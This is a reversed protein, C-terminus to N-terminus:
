APLCSLTCRANELRRERDDASVLGTPLGFM